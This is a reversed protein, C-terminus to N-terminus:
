EKRVIKRLLGLLAAGLTEARVEEVRFREKAERDGAKIFMNEFGGPSVSHFGEQTVELVRM